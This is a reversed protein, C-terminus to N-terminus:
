SSWRERGDDRRKALFGLVAVFLASGAVSWVIPFSVGGVRVSFLEPLKLWRSIALGLLAGIFGVAIAGICGGRTYGAIAQGIAGCVGSVVLLLLLEIISFTVDSEAACRAHVLSARASAM